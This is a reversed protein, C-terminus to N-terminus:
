FKTQKTSELQVELNSLKLKLEQNEMLLKEYEVRIHRLLDIVDMDDKNTKM